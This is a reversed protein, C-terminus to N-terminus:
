RNTKATRSRRRRPPELMTGRCNEAGCHCAYRRESEADDLGDRTLSYDYTLEEGREVDRMTELFVRRKEIVAECNPDCSHNFFRADNGGVAADIAVGRDVSFLLVHPHAEEDDDYRSDAEKQSIREGLYEILRTGKPIPQIAFAGTGQIPSRRLTFLDSRYPSAPATRAPTRSPTPQTAQKPKRSRATASM